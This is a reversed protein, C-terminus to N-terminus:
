LPRGVLSAGVRAGMRRFELLVRGQNKGWSQQLYPQKRIGQRSIHRALAFARRRLQNPTVARPPTRRNTATIEAEFGPLVRQGRQLRPRDGVLQVRWHRQVWPILADAPPATAGARRGFEVPAGYNVSPGVRGVIQLGSGEIKSTIGGGLRGIDRPAYTRADQELWLLSTDMAAYLEGAVQAPWNRLRRNFEDVTTM